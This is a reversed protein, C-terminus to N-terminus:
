SKSRRSKRYLKSRGDVEEYASECPSFKISEKSGIGLFGKPMLSEYLLRHVRDQLSKGFYIMVNRCLILNFENFSADTALNHAAWVINARLGSGFIVHDYKATYYDSFSKAGGAKIYNETYDKIATIPFIGKKAKILAEESIDTAYLLARDYLGEEELLIAMSFVEEGTSCGAHWIRVFPYTRLYPIVKERVARYFEPDRFMETVNISLTELFRDMTEHGRLIKQQLESITKVKENRACTWIRRKLSAPAYDRFDYGYRRFIGELLLQIELDEVKSLEQKNM